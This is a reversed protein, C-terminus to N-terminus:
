EMLPMMSIVSSSNAEGQITILDLLTYEDIPLTKKITEIRRVAVKSRCAQHGAEKFSEEVNEKSLKLAEILM